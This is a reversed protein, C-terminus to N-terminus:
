CKKGRTECKPHLLSYKTILKIIIQQTKNKEDEEEPAAAKREKEKKKWWVQENGINNYADMANVSFWDYSDVFPLSPTWGWICTCKTCACSASNFSQRHCSCLRPWSVHQIYHTHEDCCSSFFFFVSLSLSLRFFYNKFENKYFIDNM